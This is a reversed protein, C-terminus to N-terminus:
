AGKGLPCRRKSGSPSSEYPSHRHGGVMMMFVGFEMQKLVAAERVMMLIMLDIVLYVHVSLVGSM